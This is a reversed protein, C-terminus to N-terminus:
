RGIVLNVRSLQAAALESSEAVHQDSRVRNGTTAQLVVIIGLAFVLSGIFAFASTKYTM